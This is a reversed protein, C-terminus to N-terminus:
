LYIIHFGGLQRVGCSEYSCHSCARTNEARSCDTTSSSFFFYLLKISVCVCMCVCVRVCFSATILDRVAM